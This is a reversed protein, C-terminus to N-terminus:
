KVLMLALLLVLGLSAPAAEEKVTSTVQVTPTVATPQISKAATEIYTKAATEPTQPVTIRPPIQPPAYKPKEFDSIAQDIYKAAYPVPNGQLEMNWAGLDAIKWPFGRKLWDEGTYIKLRGLELAIKFGRYEGLIM